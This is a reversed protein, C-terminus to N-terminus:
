IGVSELYGSVKIESAWFLYCDLVPARAFHKSSFIKALTITVTLTSM